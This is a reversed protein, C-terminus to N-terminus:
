FNVVMKMQDNISFKNPIQMCISNRYALFSGSLWANVWAEFDRAQLCKEDSIECPTANVLKLLKPTLHAMVM